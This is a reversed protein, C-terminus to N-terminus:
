NVKRGTPPRDYPFQCDNGGDKMSPFWGNQLSLDQIKVISHLFSLTYMWISSNIAEREFSSERRKFSSERREENMIRREDM